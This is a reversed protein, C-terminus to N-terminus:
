IVDLLGQLVARIEVALRVGEKGTYASIEWNPGTYRKNFPLCGYLSPRKKLTNPGLKTHYSSATKSIFHSNRTCRGCNINVLEVLCEWSKKNRPGHMKL